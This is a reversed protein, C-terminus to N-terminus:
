KPGKMLSDWLGARPKAPAAPAGASAAGHTPAAAAAPAAGGPVHIPDNTAPPQPAASGEPRMGRMLHAAQEHSRAQTLLGCSPCHRYPHKGERAKIHAHAFGCDPCAKRGVIVAGSM